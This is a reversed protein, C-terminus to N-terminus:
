FDQIEIRSTDSAMEESRWYWFGLTLYNDKHWILSIDMWLLVSSYLSLCREQPLCFWVTDWKRKDMFIYSAFFCMWIWCFSCTFFQFGPILPGYGTLNGETSLASIFLFLESWKGNRRNEAAIITKM